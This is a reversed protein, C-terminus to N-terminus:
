RPQIKCLLNPLIVTELPRHEIEGERYGAEYLSAAKDDQVPPKKPRKAWADDKGFNFWDEDNIWCISSKARTQSNM